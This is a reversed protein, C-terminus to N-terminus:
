TPVRLRRCRIPTFYAFLPGHLISSPRLPLFPFLSLSLALFRSLDLPVGNGELLCVHLFFFPASDLTHVLFILPDLNFCCISSIDIFHQFM